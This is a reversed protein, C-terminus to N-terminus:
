CRIDVHFRSARVKSAVGIAQVIISLSTPPKAGPDHQDMFYASLTCPNTNFEPFEEKQPQVSAAYQAAPGKVSAM